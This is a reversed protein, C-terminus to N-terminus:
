PATAGASGSRWQERGAALTVLRDFLRQQAGDREATLEPHWQVATLWPEGPLEVGEVVDDDARAVVVLGQGLRDIAQHHWSMPEVEVQGMHEALMSERQVQVRHPVPRRPPLRHRVREGVVDPLHPHLTGGLVVNIVQCGRCVALTPLRRDIARRALECEVQDRLRDMGYMEAHVDGGYKEPHVDGGGALVLGDLRDLLASLETPLPPILVPVGGARRIATLYERPLKLEGLEDPAYTTVGIVPIRNM